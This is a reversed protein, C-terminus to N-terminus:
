RRAALWTHDETLWGDFRLDAASLEGLLADDTLRRATFPQTWQATDTRYRVTASLLE